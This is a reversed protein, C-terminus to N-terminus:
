FPSSDVAIAPLSLSIDLISPSLSSTLDLIAEQFFKKFNSYSIDHFLANLSSPIAWAIVNPYATSYLSSSILIAM